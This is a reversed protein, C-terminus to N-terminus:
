IKTKLNLKQWNLCEDPSVDVVGSDGSEASYLEPSFLLGDRNCRDLALLRFVNRLRRPRCGGPSTYM